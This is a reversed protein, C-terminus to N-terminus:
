RDHIDRMEKSCSVVHSRPVIEACQACRKFSPSKKRPLVIRVPWLNDHYILRERIQIPGFAVGESFPNSKIVMWFIGIPQRDHPDDTIHLVFRFTRIRM